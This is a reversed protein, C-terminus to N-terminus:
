GNDRKSARLDRVALWIRLVLLIAGGVAVVGAFAAELYQWWLPVSIASLGLIGDGINRAIHQGQEAAHQLRQM